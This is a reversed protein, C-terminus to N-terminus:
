LLSIIIYEPQLKKLYQISIDGFGHHPFKLVKIKGLYNWIKDNIKTMDSSLFIKINKFRILTLISNQNEDYTIKNLNKYNNILEINMDGFNFIINRNMVDILKANKKKVLNM